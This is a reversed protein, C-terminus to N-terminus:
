HQVAHAFVEIIQEITSEWDRLPISPFLPDDPLRIGPIKIIERQMTERCKVATPERLWKLNLVLRGDSFVSYPSRASVSDFKPNFSGRDKGTGWGLDDSNAESFEYLRKM